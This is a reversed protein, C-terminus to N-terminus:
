PARRFYSHGYPQNELAGYSLWPLPGSTVDLDLALPASKQGILRPMLAVFVVGQQMMVAPSKFSWNPIVDDAENKINQSWVFDLPGSLPTDSPRRGPSFDFRDEVSRVNKSPKLAFRVSVEIVDPESSFTLRREFSGIAGCDGREVVGTSGPLSGYSSTVCI